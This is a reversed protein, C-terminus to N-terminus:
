SHVRRQRLAEFMLVAGAVAANLSETEGPMPIHLGAAAQMLPQRVGSAESGIVLALPAALDAQYCSTGEGAAAAWLKLGGELCLAIIEDMALTQIPLRFHSGMGGRLVKPSFPDVSGATFFVAQVGAAAATRLLTGANGPDGVQDLVLAFDISAPLPLQRHEVVMLVGQPTQTDSASKMVHEAAMEMQAGSAQAAEVLKQGRENLGETYLCFQPRWGAALAEEGLRVGELVFVDAERRRKASSQLTRIEKIRANKVSTIM